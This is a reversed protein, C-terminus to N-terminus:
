RSVAISRLTQRLQAVIFDAEQALNPAVGHAEVLAVALQNQGHNLFHRRTRSSLYDGHAILWVRAYDESFSQKGESCFLIEIKGRNSHSSLASLQYSSKLYKRVMGGRGMRCRALLM